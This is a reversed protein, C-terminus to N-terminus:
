VLYEIFLYNKLRVTRILVKLPKEFTVVVILYVLWLIYAQFNTSKFNRKLNDALKEKVNPWLDRSIICSIGLHSWFEDLVQSMIIWIIIKFSSKGYRFTFKTKKGQNKHSSLCKQKNWVWLELWIISWCWLKGQTLQKGVNSFELSQLM